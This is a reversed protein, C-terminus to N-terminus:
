STFRDALSRDALLRAAFFKEIKTKATHTENQQLETNRGRALRNIRRPNPNIKSIKSTSQPTEQPKPRGNILEIQNRKYEM